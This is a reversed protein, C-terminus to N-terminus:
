RAEPGGGRLVRRITELFQENSADAKMLVAAVRAGEAASVESVSFVVVQPRPNLADIDPLLDWGSGDPLFLDLLILDFKWHGLRARAEELTGAFEFTALDQAIAAAVRQIDPDDEVHLIRPREGNGRVAHLVARVLRIEDIPKSLWDAVSLAQSNLQVRGEDAWASVVIIPLDRTHREARLARILAIGDQDPLKLDVTMAAFNSAAARERAERATHAAETDYGAKDLMMCLLRAIDPDDECVLVCAREGKSTGAIGAAPSKRVEPMEFFFTSGKGTETTFGITGGLHEVIAKSINLGLGTGGKQRTDSSDAQSFKQFIRGRFEEPIGPGRDRVEVRARGAVRSLDVEVTGGAPSFKVANSILNTVVQNLRDADANVCVADDPREFRLKVQHQGAFGENAAISQEVLARLDVVKMDFTMKGSEIKESDLIDNILRILRECNNTAIEVLSQAAHPLPGAVGGVILGLSGRISTLPTRLEHSVTSVFESKMRDIRKFETIDQVVDVVCDPNGAADRVLTSATNAWVIGGDERVFRKESLLNARVGSEPKADDPHVFDRLSRGLMAGEPYGLMDSLTKNVQIARGDPASQAMGVFAQDFTARFRSENRVLTDHTRRQRALSRMLVIALAAITLMAFGAMGYYDRRNKLFAEMAKDQRAGVAVFLPFDSMKRYSIYRLVGAQRRGRTLYGGVPNKAGEKLLNSDRMDDGIRLENGVRRLRGIGDTGVVLMVDEDGLSAETYFDGFRAPDIVAVVIGGFSGDSRTIRRAIDVSWARTVREVRPKGIFITDRGDSHLAGYYDWQARNDRLFRGTGHVHDGNEDLVLMSTITSADVQAEKLVRELVMGRGLRDHEHRVFILAHDIGKLIRRTHEELGLALNANDKQADVAVQAGEYSVREHAVTWIIALMLLSSLVIAANAYVHKRPAREPM